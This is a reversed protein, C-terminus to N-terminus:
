GRDPTLAPNAISPCVTNAQSQRVANTEDETLTDGSAIELCRLADRTGNNIVREVLGPRQYALLGLDRYQGSSSTEFRRQLNQADENIASDLAMLDDNIQGIRTQEDQIRKITDHQISISERLQGVNNISRELDVRIDLVYWFAGILAIIAGSVGVMKISSLISM